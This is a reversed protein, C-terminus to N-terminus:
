EELVVFLFEGSREEAGVWTDLVFTYDGPELTASLATHARELCSDASLGTLLHLDIDVDGRDLVMARVTARRSLSLRYYIEPGSEDQTAGCGTYTDLARHPSRSTDRLDSFPLQDIVFPTQPSGDGRLPADPSDPAPTPELVAERARRLGQLAVLNRVNYGFRLGAATLDCGRAGGDRFVNPHVGDTGLGRDPLPLLERHYDILPVQRAQAVARVVANYRPVQLAGDVRTDERPPITMLLPVVGRQTLTDTLTLMNDAYRDINDWGIDNTGFMVVAFRPQIATIEQALPSPDGDLARFAPWGGTAALSERDFPTAGDAWGALFHDLTPSLDNHDGLNVHDGAFCTLFHTSVTISDGVKAFAHDNLGPDRAAIDRLHTAVFPTIPSHTRDPPYHAPHADTDPTPADPEADAEVDPATDAAADHAIDAADAADPTPAADAGSSTDSSLADGLSADPTAAGAADEAPTTFTVTDSCGSGAILALAVTLAPLTYRLM